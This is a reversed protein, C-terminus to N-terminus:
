QQFIRALYKLVTEIFEPTQQDRELVYKAKQYFPNRLELNQEIFDALKAPSKGAILPRVRKANVLRHLLENVSRKLYFTRGLENLLDMNGKFCPMGGGTAIVIKDKNKLSLLLNHELDRFYAEGSQEFIAAITMGEQEEIASDTDLFEFNLKRAIKKGLTSKGSGMYGILIIVSM